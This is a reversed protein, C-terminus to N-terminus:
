SSSRSSPRGLSGNPRFGGSRVPQRCLQPGGILAKIGGGADIAVLAGQSVGFKQGSRNLADGLAREGAAQLKPDITTAVVVDGDITGVTDDLMDVVYDPRM